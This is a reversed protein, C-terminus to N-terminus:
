ELKLAEDILEEICRALHGAGPERLMEVHRVPLERVELGVEARDQWAAYTPKERFETSTILAVRGPWPRARYTSRAERAAAVVRREVRARARPLPRDLRREIAELARARAEVVGSAIRRAATARARGLPVSTGRAALDLRLRRPLPGLAAPLLSPALGERTGHLWAWDILERTDGDLPRPYAIRLDPREWAALLYRNVATGAVPELLHERFARWGEGVTPDGPERGLQEWATAMAWDWSLGGPVRCAVSEVPLLLGIALDQEHRGHEWAWSALLPGHDGLPDPWGRRLEERWLWVEHLYRSVCPAVPQRLWEALAAAGEPSSPDPVPEGADRARIMASEM